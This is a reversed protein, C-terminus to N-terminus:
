YRRVKSLEVFCGESRLGSNRVATLVGELKVKKGEQIRIAQGLRAGLVAEAKAGKAESWKVVGFDLTITASPRVDDDDDAAATRTDATLERVGSVSALPTNQVVLGYDQTESWGSVSHQVNSVYYKGDQGGSARSPWANELYYKAVPM